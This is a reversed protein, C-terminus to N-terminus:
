AEGNLTVELYQEVFDKLPGTALPIMLTEAGDHGKKQRVLKHDKFETLQANLTLESNVYMKERCRQYLVAFTM